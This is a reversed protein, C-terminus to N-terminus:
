KTSFSKIMLIGYKIAKDNFYIAPLFSRWQCNFSSNKIERREIAMSESVWGVWSPFLELKYKSGESEKALQSSSWKKIAGKNARHTHTHIHSAAAAAGDDM